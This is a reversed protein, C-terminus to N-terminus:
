GLAPVTRLLMEAWDQSETGGAGPKITLIANLRDSEGSLLTETELKAVYEDAQNLERDIDRLISDRQAVDHEEKALHLYTEIDSSIRLLKEEAGVRGEAAKRQQM